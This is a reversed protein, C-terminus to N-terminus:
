FTFYGYISHAVLASEAPEGPYATDANAWAKSPRSGSGNENVFEADAHGPQIWETGFGQKCIFRALHGPLDMSSPPRESFPLRFGPTRLALLYSVRAFSCVFDCSPHIGVLVTSWPGVISQINVQLWFYRGPCWYQESQEGLWLSMMASKTGTAWTQVTQLSFQQPM